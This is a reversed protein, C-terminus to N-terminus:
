VQENIKAVGSTKVLEYQVAVSIERPNLAAKYRQVNALGHLEHVAFAIHVPIKGAHYRQKKLYFGDSKSRGVETTERVSTGSPPPQLSQSTPLSGGSGSNGEVLRSM